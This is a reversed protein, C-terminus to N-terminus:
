DRSLPSGVQKTTSIQFNEFTLTDEPNSPKPTPYGLSKTAVGIDIYKICMLYRARNSIAYRIDFCGVIWFDSDQFPLRMLKSGSGHGPSVCMRGCTHDVLRRDAAQSKTTESYLFTTRRCALM